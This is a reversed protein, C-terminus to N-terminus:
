LKLSHLLFIGNSSPVIMTSIHYSMAKVVKLPLRLPKVPMLAMLAM